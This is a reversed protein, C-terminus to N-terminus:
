IIFWASGNCYLQVSQYNANMTFTTAGDITESANGDITINNISANGGADKIVVVRGSNSAVAPLNITQTGTSSRTSHVIYEATTISYSAASTSTVGRYNAGDFRVAGDDVFLSYPSTLTVSGGAVPANKIYVSASSAVSIASADTVTIQGVAIGGIGGGSSLSTGGTLTLTHDPISIVSYGLDAVTPLTLNGGITAASTNTFTANTGASPASLYLTSVKALTSAGVFSYTPPSINVARQISHAGTAFQVTRNLNINVDSAEAGAALTTHAGGTILLANPSGSTVASQTITTNGAYSVLFKSTANNVVNFLNGATRTTGTTAFVFDTASSAATLAGKFTTSKASGTSNGGLFDVTLGVNSSNTFAVNGSESLISYARTITANTGAAPAGSVALTAANTLTSAGVFAYTPARLYMARQTTLAGTSFQVIRNLNLKIDTAETSATLTTHPGGDITFAAPSGTSAAAQNVHLNSAPSATGIGLFKSTNNWFLNTNDQTILSAAGIFPISGTTGGSLSPTTLVPSTLTKNSMSLVNTTTAVVATDVAFTLSTLTLGTGAIYNAAASFQTFSLATTDLTIPDATTLVYGTAAQTTGATIFTYVGSPMEASTDNDTARTLVFPTGATGVTTVTYIGNEAGVTQNKVLVRDNASLAVSDVSIAGNVNCTLTKGGANYTANLDATSGVRVSSRLSLGAAIADAYAKNVADNASSPNALNTIKFSNFSVDATPVAMQNLSSTRVQTDFNSIASSTLTGGGASNTHNHNANAFSAITPTVITPSSNFVVFGTGSPDSLSSFLSSSAFSTTANDGSDLALVKSSGFAGGILHLTNAELSTFYGQSPTSFGIRSDDIEGATLTGPITVDDGVITTTSNQLLKGTTGDFVAIANDTSSAPGVVDGSGGGGGGGGGGIGATTNRIPM